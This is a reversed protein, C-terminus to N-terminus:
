PDDETRLADALEVLLRAIPEAYSALHARANERDDCRRCCDAHGPGPCGPFCPECADIEAVLGRVADVSIAADNVEVGSAQKGDSSTQELAAIVLAGFHAIFPATGTDNRTGDLAGQADEAVAVALGGQAVPLTEWALTAAHYAARQARHRRETAHPRLAKMAELVDDRSAKGRALADAVDLARRAELGDDAPLRDVASRACRVAAHILTPASLHSRELLRGLIWTAWSDAFRPFEALAREWGLGYPEAWRVLEPVVDGPGHALATLAASLPKRTAPAHRARRADASEGLRALLVARENRALALAALLTRRSPENAGRVEVWQRAAPPLHSLEDLIMRRFANAVNARVQEDTLEVLERAGRELRAASQTCACPGDELVGLRGTHVTSGVGGCDPCKPDARARLEDTM